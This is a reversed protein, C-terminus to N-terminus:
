GGKSSHRMLNAERTRCVGFPVDIRKAARDDALHTM